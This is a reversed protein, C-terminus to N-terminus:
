KSRFVWRKKWLLTPLYFIFNKKQLSSFMLKILVLQKMCYKCCAWEWCSSHPSGPITAFVQVFHRILQAYSKGILKSSFAPDYILSGSANSIDCLFYRSLGLSGTRIGWCGHPKYKIKLILEVSEQKELM